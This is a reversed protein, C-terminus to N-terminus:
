FQRKIELHEVLAAQLTSRCGSRQAFFRNSCWFSEFLFFQPATPVDISVSKGWVRAVFADQLFKFIGGALAFVM